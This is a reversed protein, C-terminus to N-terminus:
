VTASPASAARKAALEKMAALGKAFDKGIMEDMNMFVSAAKFGFNRVGDM